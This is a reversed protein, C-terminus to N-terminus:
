VRVADAYNAVERWDNVRDSASSAESPQLEFLLLEEASAYTGELSSSRLAERRQLPSLLLDASPLTRGIGDLRSLEERATALTPWMDNPINWKRPLPRPVFAWDRDGTSVRVLKGTANRTFRGNDM